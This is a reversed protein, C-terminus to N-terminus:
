SKRRPRLLRQHHVRLAKPLRPKCHNRHKASQTGEGRKWSLSPMCIEIHKSDKFTLTINKGSLVKTGHGRIGLVPRYDHYLLPPFASAARSAVSPVISLIVHGCQKEQQLGFEQLSIASSCLLLSVMVEYIRSPSIRDSCHIRRPM